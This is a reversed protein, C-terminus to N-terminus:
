KLRDWQAPTNIDHAAEPIDVSSVAKATLIIQKAGSDGKLSRLQSWYAQPFIAPVGLSGAYRAAAIQRPTSQWLLALKNLDTITVAPQDCLMLLVGACNSPIDAMGARISSAIGERWHRNRVIRVALKDLMPALEEYHAGAVVIVGATCQSAARRVALSVMAEGDIDIAQKPSGFRSAAGAALIIGYLKVSSCM